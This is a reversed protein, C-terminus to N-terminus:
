FYINFFFAWSMNGFNRVFLSYFSLKKLTVMRITQVAAITATTHRLCSLRVFGRGDAPNNKVESNEKKKVPQIRLVFYGLWNLGYCTSTPTPFISEHREWSYKYLLSRLSSLRTEFGTRQNWPSRIFLLRFPNRFFFHKPLM